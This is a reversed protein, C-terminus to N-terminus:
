LEVLKEFGGWFMRTSDFPTSKPDHSAMFPDKMVAANVRDRDERSKYTIWSFIVTEDPELKVAQPFSTVKGPKVDEAICEVYDIAGYKKWVQGAKEAMERYADLNKKPVALIYGDVYQAIPKM